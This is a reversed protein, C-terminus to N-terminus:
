NKFLNTSSMLHQLLMSNLWWIRRWEAWLRCSSLHSQLANRSLSRSSFPGADIHVHWNSVKFQRQSLNGVASKQSNGESPSNTAYPLTCGNVM